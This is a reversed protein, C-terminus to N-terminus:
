DSIRKGYPILELWACGRVVFRVVAMERSLRAM